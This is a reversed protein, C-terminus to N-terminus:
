IKEARFNGNTEKKHDREQHLKRMKGNTELM